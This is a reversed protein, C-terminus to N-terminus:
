VPEDPCPQLPQHQPRTTATNHGHQPRTTATNHSRYGRLEAMRMTMSLVPMARHAVGPRGSM